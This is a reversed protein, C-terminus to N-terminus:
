LCNGNVVSFSFSSYYSLPYFFQIILTNNANSYFSGSFEDELNEPEGKKYM